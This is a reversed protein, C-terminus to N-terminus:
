VGAPAVLRALLGELGGAELITDFRVRARRGDAPEVTFTTQVGPGTEVLVRGPQPETTSATATQLRGAMKM